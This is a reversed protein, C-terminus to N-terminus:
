DLRIATDFHWTRRIEVVDYERALAHPFAVYPKQGEVIRRIADDVEAVGSSVEFTVSEVSGDSRIAVTVLPDRHPRKAVERVTEVGTNFQIKQAWAEAYQILEVNPHARGFLKIRRATSLSRPLLNPQRDTISAAERRAAEEDLQRGIARLREERRAEEQEAQVRAAEQRATAQRAAEQRAAEQRAAEQRAAEQREAEQRAAEIRAAEQRAVEQRQAELEAAAQRVAEQREAEQRASEIRAAEQRAAEQRQAELEAAAQRAAERREVEQRAAQIRAAEQRAAEQRAAEQAAAAQEVTREQAKTVIREQVADGPDRPAPVVPEASSVSPAATVDSTPASPAPTVVLEAENSPEVDIVPPKPIQTPTADAPGEARPPAKATDADAAANQKPKAKATPRASPVIALGHPPRSASPTPGPRSGAPQEVPAQQLPEAVSPIASEAPTVRPPVLAVNLRPAEIWRDRWPFAFSPVGLGEGGFTLSLLLAHILLSLLLAFALRRHEIEQPSRLEERKRDGGSAAVRIALEVLRAWLGAARAADDPHLVRAAREKALEEASSSQATFDFVLIQLRRLLRWVTEDDSPSGANQLHARFTSVFTRMDDNASGSRGICAFFTAADGIQRAWALVDQYAGDVKRTTRATAIGLEYRSSWFDTRRSAEVIQEVVARFVADGPTFSIARKVQIELVGAVGRADRAFVIVDDLPGGQARQFQVLDITTGPLGRPEAGALM